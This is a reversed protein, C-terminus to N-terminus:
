CTDGGAIAMKQALHRWLSLTLVGYFVIQAIGAAELDYVPILMFIAIIFAPLAMLYAPVLHQPGVYVQVFMSFTASIIQVGAAICLLTTVDAAETFSSGFVLALAWPGLLAAAFGIILTFIASGTVARRLVMRARVTTPEGALTAIEPFLVSNYVQAGKRFVGAFQKAVNYLGAAEVSLFGGVLSTDGYARLSDLASVVSTTWCYAVFESRQTKTLAARRWRIALGNQRMLRLAFVLQLIAPLAVQCGVLWGYIAFPADHWWLVVALLTGIAAAVIQLAGLKAFRDFVRFIAESTRYGQFLLSGAVIWGATMTPASLGRTYDLFVLTAAGIAAAVIAGAIDAILGLAVLEEFERRQGRQLASVGLKIVPQQVSVTVLGAILLAASQLLAIQGFEALSLARANIASTAMALMAATGNGGVLFIGNRLIRTRFEGTRTWPGTM